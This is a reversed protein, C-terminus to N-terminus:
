EIHIPDSTWKFKMTKGGRAPSLFRSFLLDHKIPDVDHIRLCYAALSGGVSNHVIFSSTLFNHNDEITLDYVKEVNKVEEIKRVQTLIGDKLKKWVYQKSHSNNSIRSDLPCILNYAVTRNKFEERDDTRDDLGISSPIGIRLLLFRIQSILAFSTSTFKVKNADEHGDALFYGKLFATIIEDNATFICAPVHKTTSKFKYENFLDSFLLQIHRNNVVISDVNKGNSKLTVLVNIGMDEFFDVVFDRIKNERSHFCFGICGQGSKRLWGDGAFIGLILAWNEDLKHYRDLIRTQRDCKCFGGGNFKQFVFNEFSFLKSGNKSEQDYDALDWSTEIFDIKPIPNYVWDGIKVDKASVWELREGTPELWHRRSKKTSKSWNDWNKPHLGKEILIKHDQTLTVGRYDGYYSNIKLLIENNISYEFTKKVSKYSGDLTLVKDGISVESIDKTNGGDILVLTNNLCGRGPGVAEGGDGWGLLSPCIRRAEDTMMKQILFYSAFGKQTILDLEEELRVIYEKEKPLGRQEFGNIVFERLKLDADPMTPLKNSRDLQVGKALECIAVTNKKAQKLLEYDIIDSYHSAWKEDIEEESKMWLNQDQLEFMDKTEDEELAKQIGQITKGTQVMLMLRQMHSDEKLCYHCDNTVILPINYKEHARIIFADFPKQKSFDLLMFELYFNSGFMEIYKEVMPFALEDGGRDFAQGIEGNYCCSTFIIGEKYKLLQEHNVRPKYYFGKTWGWSSLKVLNSYGIENYAIALLHYSKRYLKKDEPSLHKAFDGGAEGQKLEPQMPNLYLECGYIANLKKNECARIQRPISGM